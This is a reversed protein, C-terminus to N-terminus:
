GASRARWRQAFRLVLLALVAGFASVMVGSGESPPQSSGYIRDLFGAVCSGAIAVFMTTHLGSRGRGSELWVAVAGVVLGVVLMWFVYMVQLAKRLHKRPTPATTRAVLEGSRATLLPM